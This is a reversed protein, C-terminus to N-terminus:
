GTKVTVSNQSLPPEYKLESILISKGLLWSQALLFSLTQIEKVRWYGRSRTVLAINENDLLKYCWHWLLFTDGGVLSLNSVQFHKCFESNVWLVRLILLGSPNGFFPSFFNYGKFHHLNEWKTVDSFPIETWLIRGWRPTALREKTVNNVM